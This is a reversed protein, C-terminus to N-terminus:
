FAHKLFTPIYHPEPFCVVFFFSFQVFKTMKRLEKGVLFFFYSPPNHRLHHPLAAEDEDYLSGNRPKCCTFSPPSCCPPHLPEVYCRGEEEEERVKSHQRM